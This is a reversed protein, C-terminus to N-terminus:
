ISQEMCSPSQMSIGASAEIQELLAEKTKDKRKQTLIRKCAQKFRKEDFKPSERMGDVFRAGSDGVRELIAEDLVTMARGKPLHNPDAGMQCLMRALHEAHSLDISDVPDGYFDLRERYQATSSSVTQALANDLVRSREEDDTPVMRELISRPVQCGLDISKVALYDLPLMGYQDRELPNEGGQIMEGLREAFNRDSINKAIFNHLGM